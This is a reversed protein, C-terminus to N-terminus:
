VCPLTRRFVSVICLVALLARRRNALLALSRDSLLIFLLKGRRTVLSRNLTRCSAPLLWGFLHVPAQPCHCRGCTRVQSCPYRCNFSRCPLNFPFSPAASRTGTFFGLIERLLQSQSLPGGLKFVCNRKANLQLLALSM